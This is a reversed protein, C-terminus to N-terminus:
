KRRAETVCQQFIELLPGTLISRFKIEEFAPGFWSSFLRSSKEDQFDSWVKAVKTDNALAEESLAGLDAGMIELAQRKFADIKLKEQCMFSHVELDKHVLRGTNAVPSSM